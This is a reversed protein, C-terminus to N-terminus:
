INNDNWTKDCQRIIIFQKEGKFQGKLSWESAYKRMKEDAEPFPQNNINCQTIINGDIQKSVYVKVWYARKDKVKFRIDDKLINFIQNLDATNEDFEGQAQLNGIKPHWLRVLGNCDTEFDLEQNHTDDCSEIMSTLTGSIFSSVGNKIANELDNGEAIGALSEYVFDDFLTTSLVRFDLQLVIMNPHQTRNGVRAQIATDFDILILSEDSMEARINMKNLDQKLYYLIKQSDSLNATADCNKNDKSGFLKKFFSM